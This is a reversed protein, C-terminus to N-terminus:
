KCMVWLKGLLAGAVKSGYRETMEDLFNHEALYITERDKTKGINIKLEKLWEIDEELVWADTDTQRVQSWDNVKHINLPIKEETVKESM